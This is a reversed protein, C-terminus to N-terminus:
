AEGNEEQGGETKWQNQLAQENIRKYLNNLENQMVVYLVIGGFGIIALILYLVSSDGSLIGYKQAAANIKKGRTYAWYWSYFPIFILCLFEGVCSSTDGNLRKINRCLDYLWFLSYIGCTIISLLVCQVLSKEEWASFASFSPTGSVPAQYFAASGEGEQEPFPNEEATQGREAPVPNEEKEELSFSLAAIAICYLILYGESAVSYFSGLMGYEVMHVFAYVALFICIIGAPYKNKIVGFVTLAFVILALLYVWTNTPVSLGRLGVLVLFGLKTLIPSIVATVAPIVLLKVSKESSTFFFSTLYFLPLVILLVATIGQVAIILIQFLGLLFYREHRFGMLLTSFDMVFLALCCILMLGGCVMSLIPMKSEKPLCFKTEM